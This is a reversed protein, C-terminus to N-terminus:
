DSDSMMAAVHIAGCDDNHATCSLKHHKHLNGSSLLCDVALLMHQFCVLLFSMVAEELHLLSSHAHVLDTSQLM